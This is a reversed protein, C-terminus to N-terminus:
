FGHQMFISLVVLHQQYQLSIFQEGYVLMFLIPPYSRLMIFALNLLLFRFLTTMYTAYINELVIHKVTYQEIDM